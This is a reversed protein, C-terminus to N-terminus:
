VNFVYLDTTISHTSDYTEALSSRHNSEWPYVALNKVNTADTIQEYNGMEDKSKDLSWRISGLM